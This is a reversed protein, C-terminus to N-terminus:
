ELAEKTSPVDDFESIRTAMRLARALAKFAAEAKHHDNTGRIIDLHLACRFTTAFSRFFHEINETSVDGIKERKLDLSVMPAPRGSVDVVCRALAEDMAIHAEGFREIGRRDGLARDFAQALAIATDEVTHHDDVDLDGSATLVLGYRGHKAFSELMHDLFRLGTEIKSKGIGDLNVEISIRTETTNREFTATRM